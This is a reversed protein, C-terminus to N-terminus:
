RAAKPKGPDVPQVAGDQLVDAASGREMSAVFDAYSKAYRDFDHKVQVDIPKGKLGSHEVRERYKQPRRAKLLFILLTDSYERIRGVLVGKQYVPKLTGHYARRGAEAELEATGIRIAEAWADAFRSDAARCKYVQAAGIKAKRCADRVHVGDRLAALFAAKWAEKGAAKKPAEKRAEKKAM